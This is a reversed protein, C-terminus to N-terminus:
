EGPFLASTNFNLMDGMRRYAEALRAAVEDGSKAAALFEKCCNKAMKFYTNQIQWFNIELPLGVILEIMALINSLLSLDSPEGQLRGIMEEGKHRVTFELSTADLQLNWKRIDGMIARIKEADITDESFAKKIDLILTFEAATLFAKPIPTGAEQLFSMLTRHNEYILRYTQQSDELVKTIVLNLIRRQEDRFLSKLSYINVGFHNDMLRIIDAIAGKEFASIIEEKMSQYTGEDQYTKVGGNFIHGGLHLVAFGINASDSIIDSTVEVRGVALRAEGEQRGQYDEKKVLYHYIKTTESYDRILSSLAYHAAVKNLDVVAPEVFNDYITAGDHYKPINSKAGSLMEKFPNELDRRFLKQALQIVRGAYQLIQLTEIGSLEDFFWGCSTFMLLAHRQIELLELVNTREAATLGRLAYKKLFVEVCEESRDLIVSIYDDRAAWSDRLYEGTKEEFLPSVQDRLRDLAGRLPARWEQGWGPHSESSCGCNARWREVGHSCSWSTNELIRVEQLPPYRELYEGYNTLKANSNNEIHYLAYALAMDGFKHHHGYSEGDTAVSLIQDWDRTDSFGALLRAAFDEGKNLLGEFAIAKSIPGDYFFINIKRGSPLGCLYARTPDIKGGGTDKWAGTGIKRTKAAQHPALITFKIGAEALIDLTEMDVATESLWMGEPPRKFRQAFDTIGWRIQTRKDRPNALPMILHNYAQAIANGHGSRLGISRRDAELVAAYIEPSHKEMWSLLTAGFNFSIKEYNSVIDLIRGEGDLLRSASNPAYCEAAVRENWDHYPNASDEIEIEELWPNERPPQYFHGHICIYREM